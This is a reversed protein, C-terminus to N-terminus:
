DVGCEGYGTWPRVVLTYHPHTNWKRGSKQSRKHYFPRFSFGSGQLGNWENKLLFYTGNTRKVIIKANISKQLAIQCRNPMFYRKRQIIIDWQLYSIGYNRFNSSGPVNYCKHISNQWMPLLPIPILIFEKAVYSIISVITFPICGNKLMLIQIWEWNILKFHISVIIIRWPHEAFNVRCFILFPKLFIRMPSPM